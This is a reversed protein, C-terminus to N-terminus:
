PQQLDPLGCRPSPDQVDTCHRVDEIDEPGRILGETLLFGAALAADDGPTRMVVALPHGGTRIELPEEAAVRDESERIGGPRVAMRNVLVDKSERPPSAM